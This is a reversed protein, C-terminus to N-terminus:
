AKTAPEHSRRRVTRAVLWGTAVAAVSEAAARAQWGIVIAAVAGLAFVLGAVQHRQSPAVIYGTTVALAAVLAAGAIAIARTVFPMWPATCAGSVVLEPPCARNALTLLGLGVAVTVGWALWLAPVLVIWRATTLCTGLGHGSRGGLQRSVRCVGVGLVLLALGGWGLGIGRDVWRAEVESSDAPRGAARERDVVWRPIPDMSLASLVLSAAGLAAVLRGARAARDDPM